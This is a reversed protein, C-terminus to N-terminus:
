LDSKFAVYQKLEVHYGPPQVPQFLNFDDVGNRYETVIKDYCLQCKLIKGCLGKAQM